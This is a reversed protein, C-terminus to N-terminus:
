HQEEFQDRLLKMIIKPPDSPHVHKLDLFMGNLQYDSVKHNEHKGSNDDVLAVNEQLANLDLQELLDDEQHQVVIRWLTDERGDIKATIAKARHYEKLDLPKRVMKIMKEPNM